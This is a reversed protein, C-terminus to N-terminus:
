VKLLALIPAIPGDSDRLSKNYYEIDLDKKDVGAVAKAILFLPFSLISYEKDYRLSDGRLSASVVKRIGVNVIKTFVEPIAPESFRANKYNAEERRCMLWDLPRDNDITQSNVEPVLNSNCFLDIVLKHTTDKGKKAVEGQKCKLIYPTNKNGRPLYFVCQSQQALISRCAYFSAYYLKVISWSYFCESAGRIADSVSVLASHLYNASDAKLAYQLPLIDASTLAYSDPVRPYQYVQSTLFIGAQHENM